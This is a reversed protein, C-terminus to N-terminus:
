QISWLGEIKKWSLQAIGISSTLSLIIRHTSQVFSRRIPVGFNYNRQDQTGNSEILKMRAERLFVGVAFLDCRRFILYFWPLM